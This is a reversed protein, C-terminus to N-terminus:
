LCVRVCLNAGRVNRRCVGRYIPCVCVCVCQGLAMQRGGRLDRWAMEGYVVRSAGYMARGTFQGARYIVGGRLSRQGTLQGARYIPGGRLNGRRTFQGARYTVEGRLNREGTLQGAGCFSRGLVARHAAGVDGGPHQGTFQRLGAGYISRLFLPLKGILDSRLKGPVDGLKGPVPGPVPGPVHGPVDGPM